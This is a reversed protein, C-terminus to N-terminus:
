SINEQHSAHSPNRAAICVAARKRMGPRRRSLSRLLLLLPRNSGNVAIPYLPNAVFSM